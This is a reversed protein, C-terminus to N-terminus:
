AERRALLAARVVQRDDHETKHHGVLQYTEHGKGAVLVVDGPSAAHVARAIAARRDLEVEPPSGADFGRLIAAAIVEPVESRPNDNTVIVRDAGRAAARGMPERKDPDRDGGCGFVCWLRGRTLPRLAALARELADPTHAYDVVAVVDDVGPVDCRELRGPVSPATLLGRVAGEVDRGLGYVIAVTMLLNAANHYGILPSRLSWAAEGIRVDLTLGDATHQVSAARVTAERGEASVTVLRSTRARLREALKAGHADDVNVVSVKPSHELFLREKEEAYAEMSGHYDLHDQTLNTFAALEFRVGRVREAALAISSVEMVLDRAGLDLMDRALRQLADAEPSTHTADVELGEFGYGLTGVVGVRSGLGRLVAATLQTTTTKGNTGTIGVVKLSETPHDYVEAAADAMAARPDDVEIVPVDESIAAGTRALVAVAGHMLAPTVFRLGDARAGSMAVFLDGVEVLRSDQQVGTVMVDPDGRLRGGVRRALSGLAIGRVVTSVARGPENQEGAMTLM